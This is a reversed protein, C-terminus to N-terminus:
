CFIIKFIKNLVNIKVYIFKNLDFYIFVFITLFINKLRTFAEYTKSIFFDNFQNSLRKNRLTNKRYKREIKRYEFRKLM